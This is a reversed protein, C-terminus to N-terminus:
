GYHSRVVNRGTSHNAVLTKGSRPLGWDPPPAYAAVGILIQARGWEGLQRSSPKESVWKCTISHYADFYGFRRTKRGM